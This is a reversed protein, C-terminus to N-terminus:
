PIENLDHFCKLVFLLHSKLRLLNNLSTSKTLLNADAFVFIIYGLM